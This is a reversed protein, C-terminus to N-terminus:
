KDYTADDKRKLIIWLIICLHKYSQLLNTIIFMFNRVFIETNKLLFRVYKTSKM